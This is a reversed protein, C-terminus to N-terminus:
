AEILEETDAMADLDAITPTEFRVAEPLRHTRAMAQTTRPFCEHLLGLRRLHEKRQQPSYVDFPESGTRLAALHSELEHLDQDAHERQCARCVPTEATHANVLIVADCYACQHEEFGAPISQGTSLALTQM